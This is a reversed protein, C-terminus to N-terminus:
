ECDTIKYQEPFLTIIVETGSVNDNRDQIKIFEIDRFIPALLELREKIISIGRSIHQSTRKQAAEALGIGDDTINITIVAFVNQAVIKEGKGIKIIINGETKKPLLGHWISNEVFPQLIMNPIFLKGPDISDEIKIIYNLRDGFRLKEYTLYLGLRQIETELPIFTNEALDLNMRILKSFNFFYENAEEKSHMNNYHQISNLTNFIFHPNLSASLAKHKLESISREMMLKEQSKKRIYKVRKNFAFGSLLFLIVATGTYFWITKWFPPEIEFNLTTIGSRLNNDFARIIFRYKGPSLSVLDIDSNDTINWEKKQLDIDYSGIKYEYRINGPASFEPSSFFVKLNNQTPKFILNDNYSVTTDQLAINQIIVNSPPVLYREINNLEFSALGNLSGVWLINEKSDFGIRTVFNSPLGNNENFYRFGSITGNLISDVPVRYLGNVNGIWANNSNDFAISFSNRFDWEATNKYSLIKDDGFIVSIGRNGAVWVRGNEDITICHIVTSVTTDYNYYKIEEGKKRVLGKTTGVWLSGDQGKGFQFITAQPLSKDNEFLKFSGTETFTNNRQVVTILNNDSGLLYTSSDFQYFSMVNSFIFNLKKYRMVFMDYAGTPHYSSHYISVTYNNNIGKKLGYIREFIDYSSGTNIREFKDNELINVGDNTGVIVRSDTNVILDSIYNNSLGDSESYKSIFLNNLCSIGRGLVSIWVNGQRDELIKQINIKNVGLIEGIGRLKNNKLYFLGTNEVSFWIVGRSDILINNILDNVGFEITRIVKKDNVVFVKGKTGIWLNNQKDEAISLININGLGQIELKKFDHNSLDFIGSAGFMFINDGSSLFLNALELSDPVLKQLSDNLYHHIQHNVIYSLYKRDEIVFITDNRIKFQSILADPKNTIEYISFSGNKFVSIKKSPIYITSDSSEVIFSNSNSSLGDTDFYNRFKHGDFCSVGRGSTFWMFGKVDQHISFVNANCLGEKTSYNIFPYTQPFSDAATLFILFLIVTRLFGEKCVRRNHYSCLVLTVATYTRM